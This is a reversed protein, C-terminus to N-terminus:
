VSISWKSPAASIDMAGPTAASSHTRSIPNSVYPTPPPQLVASSPGPSPSVGDGISLATSAIGAYKARIAQRRARREAVTEEIPKPETEVDLELEPEPQKPPESDKRLAPPSALRM